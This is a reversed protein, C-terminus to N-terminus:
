KFWQADLQSYKQVYRFHHGLNMIILTTIEPVLKLLNTSFNTSIELSDAWKSEGDKKARNMRRGGIRKSQEFKEMGIRVCTTVVEITSYHSTDHVEHRFYLPNVVDDSLFDLSLVFPSFLFNNLVITAFSSVSVITWLCLFQFPIAICGFMRAGM